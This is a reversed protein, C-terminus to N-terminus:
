KSARLQTRVQKVVQEGDPMVESNGCSDIWIERNTRSAFLVHKEGVSMPYRSSTNENRVVIVDSLTGKLKKLVKITVNSATVGDPDDADEQLRQESVVRGIVIAEASRVETKLPIKYGSRDTGPYFCVADAAPLHAALLLLLSGAWVAKLNMVRLPIDLVSHGSSASQLRDPWCLM